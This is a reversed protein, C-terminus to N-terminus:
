RGEVSVELGAPAQVGSSGGAPIPSGNASVHPTVRAARARRAAIYSFVAGVALAGVLPGFLLVAGWTAPGMKAWPLRAYRPDHIPVWTLPQGAGQFHTTDIQKYVPYTHCTFDGSQNSAFIRGVINIWSVFMVAGHFAKLSFFRQAFTKEAAIRGKERGILAALDGGPVAGGEAKIAAAAAVTAKSAMLSQHVNIAVWGITLGGLVWVFSVLVATPLGTNHILLSTATAWLMFIIYARGLWAHYAHVRAWLRTVLCGFGAIAVLYCFIVHAFYAGRLCSYKDYHYTFTPDVRSDFQEVPLRAPDM